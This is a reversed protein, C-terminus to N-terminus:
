LWNVSPQFSIASYDMAVQGPVLRSGIIVVASLLPTLSSDDAMM